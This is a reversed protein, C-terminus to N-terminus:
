GIDLSRIKDSKLEFTYRLVAPSGPFNGSVRARVIVTADEEEMELPEATYSYKKKSEIFWDTIEAIGNYTHKEDHVAADPTFCRVLSASEKDNSLQFFLAIPAPFHIAM